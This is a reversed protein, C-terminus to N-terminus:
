LLSIRELTHSVALSDCMQNILVRTAEKVQEVEWECGKIIVLTAHLKPRTRFMVQVNFKDQIALLFPSEPDPLPQLTGVVPLEFSFMLPSLEQFMLWM